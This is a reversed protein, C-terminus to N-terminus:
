RVRCKGSWIIQSKTGDVRVGFVCKDGTLQAYQKTASKYEKTTLSLSGNAWVEYKEYKRM